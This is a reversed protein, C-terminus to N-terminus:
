KFPNKKKLNESRLIGEVHSSCQPLLESHVIYTTGKICSSSPSLHKKWFPLKQLQMLNVRLILDVQWRDVHEMDSEIRGTEILESM